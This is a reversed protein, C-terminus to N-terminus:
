DLLPNSEEEEPDGFELAGEEEEPLEFDLRFEL